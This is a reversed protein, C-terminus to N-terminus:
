DLHPAVTFMVYATRGPAPEFYRGNTENVIVTGVYRRDALNDIRAFESFRWGHSEQVLGARLNAVWYGPAAADNRDDTYIQARGVTELTVSFGHPADAWTLGAYLANAPVAPLHNGAPISAATGSPIEASKCPATFCTLYSQAVVAHLYTYALRASFGHPWLADVGLELGRRKTAGINEYVSRGSANAQVALEDRTQIYFAAADARWGEGASKVGAEVNNSRAPELGLNLGTLAANTSRYALQDLTPTEFGRGYSVYLNTRQAARFTIGGVPDTATYRVGSEPPGTLLPLHDHDSVDVVSNRVGALVRWRTGPDWQAQLYEDADYVHNAEDRRLVGEVGLVNGDFNLYGQRAEELDDYSVGATVVLPGGALDRHDRVHLDMGWFDRSLVIVGGPSAAARETSEPIAQFQTTARHGSYVTGMLDDTGSLENEYITGLQEQRVSKRTDFQLAGVGPQVPNAAAQAATLGLPDQLDPSEVANAIVTLRANEGTVLRLKGNFLDREAASHDRYGDTQFHSLDAVYDLDHDGGSVKLAYRQTNFTGYDASAQGQLGPTGNATFIAIVGGSANGYLASFPGRLVEIHDASGLDFQSFQGQGDPMTGPIGDAYLRVGTVGFSSRAGFGRISMQLDQAYNQRSQASVGPVTMLSESLNVQLQGDQIERRGIRDVSVPLDLSSEPARTATVVVTSLDAPDAPEAPDAWAASAAVACLSVGACCLASFANM